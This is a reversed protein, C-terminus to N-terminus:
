FSANDDLKELLKKTEEDAVVILPKEASINLNNRQGYNAPDTRELWWAASQWSQDEIIRRQCTQHIKEYGISEAKKIQEAIDQRSLNNFHLHSYGHNQVSHGAQAMQKLLDSNKEAWKGTVYFTVTADNKKFEELMQPIYEEGWDVNVTIAVMKKGTNGQYVPENLKTAISAQNLYVLSLGIFCALLVVMSVLARIGSRTLFIVKM